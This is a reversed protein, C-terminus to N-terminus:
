FLINADETSGDMRLVLLYHLHLFETNGLMTYCDKKTPGPQEITIALKYYLKIYQLKVYPLPPLLLRHLSTEWYKLSLIHQVPSQEYFNSSFDIRTILPM